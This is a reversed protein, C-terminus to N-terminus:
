KTRKLEKSLEGLYGPVGGRVEKEYWSEFDDFSLTVEHMKAIERSDWFGERRNLSRLLTLARDRKNADSCVRVVFSLGSILNGDLSFTFYRPTALANVLREAANLFDATPDVSPEPVFYANMSWFRQALVLNLFQQSEAHPHQKYELARKTSDFRAIWTKFGRQLDEFLADLVNAQPSDEVDESELTLYQDHDSANEIRLRTITTYQLELERIELVAEDLDQFLRSSLNSTDKARGTVWIRRKDSIISDDMFISAEVSLTSLMEKLKKTIAYNKGGTALDPLELLQNGARLHRVCEAYRGLISEFAIFLLCCVLICHLNDVSSATLCPLIQTIAKNYQKTLSRMHQLSRADSGASFYRHAAGVAM